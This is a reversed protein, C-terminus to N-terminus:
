GHRHAHRCFWGSFLTSSFIGALGLQGLDSRGAVLGHFLGAPTLLKPLLGAISLLVTNLGVAVLWHNLSYISYLADVVLRGSVLRSGLKIEDQRGIVSM